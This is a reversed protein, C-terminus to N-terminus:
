GGGCTAPASPGADKRLLIGVFPSVVIGQRHVAFLGAVACAYVVPKVCVIPVDVPRAELPRAPADDAGRAVVLRSFRDAHRVDFQLTAGLAILRSLITPHPTKKKKDSKIPGILKTPGQM